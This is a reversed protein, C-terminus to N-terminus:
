QAQPPEQATPTGTGTYPWAEMLFRAMYEPFLMGSLYAQAKVHNFTQEPVLVHVYRFGPPKPSRARRAESTRSEPTKEEVGACEPTQRTM